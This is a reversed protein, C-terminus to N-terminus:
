KLLRTLQRGAAAGYYPKVANGIETQNRLLVDEAAALNPLNGVFSVIVMRTWSGHAEWLTRMRDHFAIAKASRMPVHAAHDHAAAGSAGSGAFAMVPVAGVVAALGAFSLTRRSTAHAGTLMPSVEEAM